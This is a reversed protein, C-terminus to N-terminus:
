KRFHLRDEMLQLVKHEDVANENTINDLNRM